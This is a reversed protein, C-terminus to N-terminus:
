ALRTRVSTIVAAAAGRTGRWEIDDLRVKGTGCIVIVSGSARDVAAVQGPVALYREADVHVAARWVTLPENDLQAYAGSFPESSANVLRVIDESSRGWDIRADERRRPYCRLADTPDASQRALVYHPDAQLRTVAEVFLEPTQEGIWELVEGIRDGPALPRYARAIIDGSDLEGGVMRHVCLGIRAEGNLIAWAQCANGRYRPLDGGHANLIGMAFRGIVRESIIAPFNMSIGLALPGAAAFARDAEACELTAAQLFVAGCDAALREFDAADRRYEPAARATIILGIDHGHRRLLQATEYLWETRGIVALRM